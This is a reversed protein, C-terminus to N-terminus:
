VSLSIIVRVHLSPKADSFSIVQVHSVDVVGEEGVHDQEVVSKAVQAALLFTKSFIVSIGFVFYIFLISFVHTYNLAVFCM